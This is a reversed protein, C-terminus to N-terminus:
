KSGCMRQYNNFSQMAYMELGIQIECESIEVNVDKMFTSMKFDQSFSPYQLKNWSEKKKKQFSIAADQYFLERLFIALYLIGPNIQFKEKWDSKFKLEPIAAVLSLVVTYFTVVGDTSIVISLSLHVHGLIACIVWWARM